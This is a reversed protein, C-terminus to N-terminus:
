FISPACGSSTTSRTLVTISREYKNENIKKAWNEKTKEEGVPDRTGTDRTSFRRTPVARTQRPRLPTCCDASPRCRDTKRSRPRFRRPCSPSSWTWEATDTSPSWYRSCTPRVASVRLWCWERTMQYTDDHIPGGMSGGGYVLVCNTNNCTFHYVENSLVNLDTPNKM